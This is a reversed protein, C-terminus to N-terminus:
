KIVDWLELDNKIRNIAAEAAERGAEICAKADRLNKEDYPGVEPAIVIDSNPLANQVNRWDATEFAQYITQIINTSKERKWGRFAVDVAIVYQAGLAERCLDVPVRDTVGGDVLLMDDWDVPEFVGPISISARIAKSLRGSTIAVTRSTVLDTATACFPIVCQAFTKKCCLSDILREAKKGKVLGKRPRGLDMIESEQLSLALEQLREINQGSCYIGGVVAGMSCGAICDIPVGHEKFVQLVGIHALGRAAGGGLALGIRKRKASNRLQNNVTM